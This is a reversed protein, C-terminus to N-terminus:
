KFKIQRFVDANIQRVPAGPRVVHVSLALPVSTPPLCAHDNCAQYALKGKINYIGPKLGKGLKLLVGVRLDGQYVLLPSDAFALKMLAGKPYVTQEISFASPLELKVETPILYDRNPKNDNIHYGPAIRAVVAARLVALARAGETAAVMRAEVVPNTDEARATLVLAGAFVSVLLIM